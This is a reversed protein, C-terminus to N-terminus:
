VVSNKNEHARITLNPTQTMNGCCAKGEFNIIQAVTYNFNIWKHSLLLYM